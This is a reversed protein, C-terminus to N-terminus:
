RGIVGDLLAMTAAYRDKAQWLAGIAAVGWAGARRAERAREPTVGGIAIVPRGLAAARAVLSLGTAERGPHSATPWITGVVLGDAGAAVAAEAEGLSHVSAV